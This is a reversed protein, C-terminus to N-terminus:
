KILAVQGPYVNKLNKFEVNQKKKLNWKLENREEYMKCCATLLIRAAHEISQNYVKALYRMENSMFKVKWFTRPFLYLEATNIAVTFIPPM